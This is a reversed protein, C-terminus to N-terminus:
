SEKPRGLKPRNLSWTKASQIDVLVLGSGLRITKIEERGIASLITTRPIGFREAVSAPTDYCRTDIKKM